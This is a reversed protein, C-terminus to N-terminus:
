GVPTCSPSLCSSASAVMVMSSWSPRVRVLVHGNGNVLLAHTKGPAVGWRGTVPIPLEFPPGAFAPHPGRRRPFATCLLLSGAPLDLSHLVLWYM